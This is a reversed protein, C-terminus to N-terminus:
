ADRREDADIVALRSQRDADVGAIGRCTYTVIYREPPTDPLVLFFQFDILDSRAKLEMIHEYESRLRRTRPDEVAMAKSIREAEEFSSFGFWQKVVANEEITATEKEGYKRQIESRSQAIM